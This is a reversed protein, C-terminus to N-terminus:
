KGHKLLGAARQEELWPLFYGHVYVSYNEPKGKRYKKCRNTFNDYERQRNLAKLAFLYLCTYKNRLIDLEEKRSKAARLEDQMTRRDFEQWRTLDKLRDTFKFRSEAAKERRFLKILDLRVLFGELGGENIM